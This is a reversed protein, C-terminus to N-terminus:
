NNVVELHMFVTKSACIYNGLPLNSVIYGKRDVQFTPRSTPVNSTSFGQLRFKTGHPLLLESHGLSNGPIRGMYDIAAMPTGAPVQIRIIYQTTLEETLKNDQFKTSQGHAGISAYFCAVNPSITTSTFGNEVIENNGKFKNLLYDLVRQGSVGKYVIMDQRTALDQKHTNFYEQMNTRIRTIHKFEGSGENVDRCVEFDDTYRFFDERQDPNALQTHQEALRKYEERAQINQPTTPEIKSTLEVDQLEGPVDAPMNTMLQVAADVRGMNDPSNLPRMNKVIQSIDNKTVTAILRSEIDDRLKPSMKDM